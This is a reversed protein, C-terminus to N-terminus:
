NLDMMKKNVASMKDNMSQNKMYSKSLSINENFIIEAKELLCEKTVISKPSLSLVKILDNYANLMLVANDTKYPMFNLTHKQINANNNFESEEFRDFIDRRNILICIQRLYFTCSKNTNPYFHLDISKKFKKNIIISKLFSLCIHNLLIQFDSYFSSQINKASNLLNQKKTKFSQNSFIKVVYDKYYFNENSMRFNYIHLM